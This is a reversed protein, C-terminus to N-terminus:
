CLAEMLAKKRATDRSRNRDRMHEQFICMFAKNLLDLDTQNEWFVGQDEHLFAEGILVDVHFHTNTKVDYFKHYEIRGQQNRSECIRWRDVDGLATLISQVPEGPVYPKFIRKLFSM